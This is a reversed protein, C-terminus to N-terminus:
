QIFGIVIHILLPKLLCQCQLFLLGEPEIM